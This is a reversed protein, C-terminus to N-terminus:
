RREELAHKLEDQAAGYGAWALGFKELFPMAAVFEYDASRDNLYQLYQANAAALATAATVLQAHQPKVAAPVRLARVSATLAQMRPECSALTKGYSKGLSDGLSEFASHVGRADLKSRRAGPLACSCFGDFQEREIRTMAATADAYADGRMMRQLLVAGAAVLLITGAVLALVQRGRGRNMLSAEAQVSLPQAPPPADNGATPPHTAHDM